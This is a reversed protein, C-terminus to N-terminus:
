PTGFYARLRQDFEPTAAFIAILDNITLAHSDLLGRWYDIENTAPFRGLYGRYLRVVNTDNTPNKSQYEASGVLTAGLNQSAAQVGAIGATRYANDFVGENYAVGGADILRDLLGVYMTAIFNRTPMGGLCPFLGGVYTAFEASEAFLAVVQPRNWTGSLWSNLEAQSPARRLFVQYADQLFQTDNRNRAAYEPSSFFVRAMERPAFAVDIGLGVSYSFYGHYWADVAGAEPARGLIDNYYSTILQRASTEETPPVAGIAFIGNVTAPDSPAYVIEGSVGDWSTVVPQWCANPRLRSVRATSGLGSTRMRLSGSQARASLDYDVWVAFLGDAFTGAPPSLMAISSTDSLRMAGTRGDSVPVIGPAGTLGLTVDLGTQWQTAASATLNVNQNTNIGLPPAALFPQYGVSSGNSTNWGILAGSGGGGSLVHPGTSSSWYDNTAVCANGASNYLGAQAVPGVSCRQLTVHAGTNAFISYDGSATGNGQFACNAFSAAANAYILAGNSKHGTFLSFASSVIASDKAELGIDAALFLNGHLGASAAGHLRVSASAAGSLVNGEILADSASDVLVNAIANDRLTNDVVRVNHSVRNNVSDAVVAVGQHVSGSVKSNRLTAGNPCGWFTVGSNLSNLIESDEIVGTSNALFLGDTKAGIIRSTVFRLNAADVASLASYLPTNFTSGVIEVTGPILGQAATPQIDVSNGFGTFTSNHIAASAGRSPYSASAILSVGAGPNATSPNQLQANGDLTLAGAVNQIGYITNSISVGHVAASSNEMNIGWMAQDISGGTLDLTAASLYIASNAGNGSLHANNRVVLAAGSLAGLLAWGSGQIACNDVILTVGAGSARIPGGSSQITAGNCLITKSTSLAFETITYTTGGNLTVTTGPASLLPALNVASAVTAIACLLLGISFRRLAGIPALRRRITAIHSPQM